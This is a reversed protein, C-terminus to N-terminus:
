YKEDVHLKRSDMDIQTCQNVPTDVFLLSLPLYINEYKRHTQTHGHPHGNPRYSKLAKVYSVKIKTIATPDLELDFLYISKESQQVDFEKAIVLQHFYYLRIILTM